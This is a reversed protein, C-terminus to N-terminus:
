KYKSLNNFNSFIWTQLNNIAGGLGDEEYMKMFEKSKLVKSPNEILQHIDEISDEPINPNRLDM